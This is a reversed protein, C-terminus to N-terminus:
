SAADLLDSVARAIQTMKMVDRVSVEPNSAYFFDAPYAVSAFFSATNASRLGQFGEVVGVFMGDLWEVARATLDLLYPKYDGDYTLSFLLRTDDDFLVVRFDHVTGVRAEWWAAEAQFQPLRERFLEAGNATLKAILTLEGRKGIRKGPGDPQNTVVQAVATRENEHIKM